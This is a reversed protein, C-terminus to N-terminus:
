ALLTKKEPKGSEFLPKMAENVEIFEMFDARSMTYAGLSGLHNTESQCDILAFGRSELWKVFTIFGYKSANSVAAFMSEGSFIHGTIVGYLGGVLVGDSWVEVSHAWGRLHLAYYGEIFEESIWTGVDGQRSADACAQIVRKFDHNLTVTFPKRRLLQRMTKSVYLEHPRFCFRPDLSFWFPYGNSIYWPFIGNRYALLLEEPSLTGGIILLGEEDAHQM